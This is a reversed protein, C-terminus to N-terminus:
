KQWLRAEWREGMVTMNKKEGQQSCARTQKMETNSQRRETPETEPDHEEIGPGQKTWRVGERRGGKERARGKSPKKEGAM